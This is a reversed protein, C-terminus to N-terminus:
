ELEKAGTRLPVRIGALDFLARAADARRPSSIEATSLLYLAYAEAAEVARGAKEAARADLLFRRAAREAADRVSGSAVVAFHEAAARAMEADDPTEDPDEPLDIEPLAPAITEDHQVSGTIAADLLTEDGSTLRLRVTVTAVKRFELTEFPYEGFMPTERRPPIASARRRAAAEQQVLSKARRELNNVRSEARALTIEYAARGQGIRTDTPRRVFPIDNLRDLEEQADAVREEIGERRQALARIETLVIALAPNTEIRVGDQLKIRRVITNRPGEAVRASVVEGTLRLARPYAALVRDGDQSPPLVTLSAGGGRADSEIRAALARALRLGDVDGNTGDAFAAIAIRTQARDAVADLGPTPIQAGLRLAETELLAAVAPRRKNLLDTAAHQLATILRDRLTRVVSGSVGVQISVRRADRLADLETGTVTERLLDNEITVRVLDADAVPEGGFHAGRLERIAISRKGARWAEGARGAARQAGARLTAERLLRVIEADKPDLRRAKALLDRARDPDTVLLARADERLSKAAGAAQLIGDLQARARRVVTASADYIEAKALHSRAEDADGRAAADIARVARSQAAMRRATALKEVVVVSGPEDELAQDYFAVASEYDGITLMRDAKARPTAVEALTGRPRACAGLAAPAALLSATLLVAATRSRSM